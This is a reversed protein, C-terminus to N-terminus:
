LCYVSLKDTIDSRFLKDNSDTVQKKIDFRPFDLTTVHSLIL